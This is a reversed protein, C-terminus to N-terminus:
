NGLPTFNKWFVLQPMVSEVRMCLSFGYCVGYFRLPSGHVTDIYVFWPLHFLSLFHCCQIFHFGHIKSVLSIQFGHDQGNVRLYNEDVILYVILKFSRMQILQNNIEVQFFTQSICVLIINAFFISYLQSPLKM